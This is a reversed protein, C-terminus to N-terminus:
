SISISLYVSLVTSLLTDKRKQSIYNRGNQIQFFRLFEDRESYLEERAETYMKQVQRVKKTDGRDWSIDFKRNCSNHMESYTQKNCSKKYLFAKIFGCVGPNLLSKVSAM